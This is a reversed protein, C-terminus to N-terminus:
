VEEQAKNRRKVQGKNQGGNGAKDALYYGFTLLKQLLSFTGVRTLGSFSSEGTGHIM